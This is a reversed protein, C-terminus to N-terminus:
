GWIKREREQLINQAPLLQPVLMRMFNRLAKHVHLTGLSLM